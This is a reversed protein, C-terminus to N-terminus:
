SSPMPPYICRVFAKPHWKWVGEIQDCACRIFRGDPSWGTRVVLQGTVTSQYSDGSIHRFENPEAERCCDNTCCCTQSIKFGFETCNPFQQPLAVNSFLFLVGAMGLVAIAARM